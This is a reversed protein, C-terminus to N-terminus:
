VASKKSLIACSKVAILACRVLGTGSKEGTGSEREGDCYLTSADESYYRDEIWAYRDGGAVILPRNWELQGEM